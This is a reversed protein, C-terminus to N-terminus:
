FSSFFTTTEFLALLLLPSPLSHPFFVRFINEKAYLFSISIGLKKGEVGATGIGEGRRRRLLDRSCWLPHDGGAFGLV